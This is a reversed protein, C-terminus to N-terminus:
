STNVQRRGGVRGFLSELNCSNESLGVEAESSFTLRVLETKLCTKTAGLLLIEVDPM